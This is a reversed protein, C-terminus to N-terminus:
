KPADMLTWTVTSMYEGKKNGAPVTLKIEDKDFFNTWTG